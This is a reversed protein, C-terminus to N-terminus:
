VDVKNREIYEIIESKSVTMHTVSARITAYQVSMGRVRSADEEDDWTMRGMKLIDMVSKIM